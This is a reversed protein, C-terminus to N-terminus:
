AFTDFSVLFRRARSGTSPHSTRMSASRFNSCGHRAIGDVLKSRSQCRQQTNRPCQKTFEPLRLSRCLRRGHSQVHSSGTTSHSTGIASFLFDAIARAFCLTARSDLYQDCLLFPQVQQLRLHHLTSRQKARTAQKWEQRSPQVGHSPIGKDGGYCRQM